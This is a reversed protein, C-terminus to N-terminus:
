AGTAAKRRALDLERGLAALVGLVLWFLYSLATQRHAWELLGQLCLLLLGVGLGLMVDGRIDDRARLAGRAAVALAHLLLALFAGLGLYGVEAATLWYINHVIGSTDYGTIGVRTGYGGEDLVRSYQNIGVGLPHESLMLKAAAEFYKRSEASEKPAHLFRDVITDWARALVVTALLLGCLAMVLKRARFRRLVSVGFVMIMGLGFMTMAGRSLTLVISIAGAGLAIAPLRGGRGALVLALCMPLVLNVAMGLTNQHPLNGRAQHFHLIYRQHVVLFFEYLTGFTMGRLVAAPVEPDKAAARVLVALLIYMRLLKWVSFVSFEPWRAELVSVLVAAFYLYRAARYPSKVRVAPLALALAWVLLDVVTVELGRSDGRYTEYSILNIKLPDLGFYPLFGILLWLRRQWQVRGRLWLGLPVVGCLAVVFVAWKM